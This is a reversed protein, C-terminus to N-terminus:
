QVLSIFQMTRHPQRGPTTSNVLMSIVPLLPLGTIQLRDHLETISDFRQDHGLATANDGLPDGDLRCKLNRPSSRQM